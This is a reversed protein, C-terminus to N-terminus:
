EGRSGGQLFIVDSHRKGLYSCSCVTGVPTGCQAPLPQKGPGCIHINLTSKWVLCASNPPIGMSPSQEISRSSDFCSLGLKIGKSGQSLWHLTSGRRPMTSTDNMSLFVSVVHERIHSWKHFSPPRQPLVTRSWLGKYYCGKSSRCLLLLGQIPCLTRTWLM